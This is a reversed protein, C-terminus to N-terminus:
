THGDLRVVYDEGTLEPLVKQTAARATQGVLIEYPQFQDTANVTGKDDTLAVEIGLVEQMAAQLEQAATLVVDSAEEQPYVIRFISAGSSAVFNLRSDYTPPEASTDCGVLLPLALMCVCLITVLSRYTIGKIIKKHKLLKM